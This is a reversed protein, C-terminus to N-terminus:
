LDSVGRESWYLFLVGGSDFYSLARALRWDVLVYSDASPVSNQIETINNMANWNDANAM